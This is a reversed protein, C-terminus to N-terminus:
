KRRRLLLGGLGLLAITMPEPILVVRDFVAWASAYTTSAWEWGPISEAGLIVGIQKGAEAATMVPSTVVFNQWDDAGPTSTWWPTHPLASRDIDIVTKNVGDDVYWQVVANKAGYLNYSDFTLTYQEGTSIVHSSTQIAGDEGGWGVTGDFCYMRWNGGGALPYATSHHEVGVNNSVPTPNLNDWGLVSGMPETHYFQKTTQQIGAADKEFGGNSLLPAATASVGLLLVLSVLVLIKKLM